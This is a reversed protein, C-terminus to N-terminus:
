GWHQVRARAGAFMYCVVYVEEKVTWCMCHMVHVLACVCVCLCFVVEVVRDENKEKRRERVSFERVCVCFVTNGLHARLIITVSRHPTIAATEEKPHVQTTENCNAIAIGNGAGSEFITTYM